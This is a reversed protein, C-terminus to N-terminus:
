TVDMEQKANMVVDAHIVPLKNQYGLMLSNIVLTNLKRPSSHCCSYLASIADEEFIDKKANVYDFRSKIYENVEKRSLGNFTYNVIIRQKLSEYVQKSLEDKLEPNGILILTVYDASDMDFDYFVKFNLLMERSLLHADDLIVIPQVKEQIVLRKFEDQINKYIDSKYCAGIDLGLNNSLIKFFDFTTILDNLSIYIVKYLDKNLYDIFYRAVYTKGFGCAGTFLGIGKVEKLYNFRYLTAKFDESEFKYKISEDKLFPNACMGYFSTYM